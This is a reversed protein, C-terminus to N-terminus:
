IFTRMFEGLAMIAMAQGYPMSTIAIDKYHQLDHGMGTGFSTQELEGEASICGMVAKIAKVASQLYVDGSIYRKRCAKLMGYAFGATASAEEYSGESVPIDLLTRWMGNEGQLKLLAQCQSELIGILFQRLPDTEKLDLLEIFDPIAITLWSNGRAWRARAFNHGVELGGKDEWKWGHFFLGTSTDCLYQCHLVFQRKAEEVYEPRNLTLGIKALPLASMMLTDDWLEDKNKLPKVEYGFFLKGPPLRLPQPGNRQKITKPLAGMPVTSGQQPVPTSTGPTSTPTPVGKAGKKPVLRQGGGSFNSSAKAHGVAATNASPAIAAYNIAQAMSGETHMTGGKGAMTSGISRPTSTGSAGTRSPEQYGVPPAFDVEIDTEQVSVSKKDGQPKVELVAIEYTTENYLFTFIDGESLQRSPLQSLQSHGTDAKAYV